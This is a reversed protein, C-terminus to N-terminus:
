TNVVVAHARTGRQYKAGGGAGTQASYHAWNFGDGCPSPLVGAPHLQMVEIPPPSPTRIEEDWEGASSILSETSSSAYLSPLSTATEADDEDDSSSASGTFSPRKASLTPSVGLDFEADSSSEGALHVTIAPHAFIATVPTIPSLTEDISENDDEDSTMGYEDDEVTVSHLALRRDAREVDEATISRWLNSRTSPAASSAGRVQGMSCARRLAKDVARAQELGEMWM